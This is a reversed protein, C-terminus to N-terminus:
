RHYDVDYFTTFEEKWYLPFMPTPGFRNKAIILERINTLRQSDILDINYNAKEKESPNHIFIVVDADQEIAGSERLDSLRPRRDAEDARRNFQSLAIVPLSLSKAIHKLGRSISTVELQRSEKNEGEMLQLYDVIILKIDKDRQLQNSKARLASLSIGPTDDIYIEQEKVKGCAEAIFQWARDIWSQPNNINMSAESSISRLVLDGANMELSFFATANGIKASKEAFNLALSSKGTGTRGAIVYLCGPKWGGIFKNLARFGTNIGSYGRGQSRGELEKYAAPVLDAMSYYPKRNEDQTINQLDRMIQEAVESSPANEYSLNTLTKGLMIMKRLKLKEQLIGCHYKINAASTTEQAIAAITAEGGVQDIIGKKRLVDCLIMPDPNRDSDYIEKIASYIAAHTPKYFVGADILSVAINWAELELMVAGLVAREIGADQPPIFDNM